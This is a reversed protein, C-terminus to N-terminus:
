SHILFENLYKYWPYQAERTAWITFFRGWLASFTPEIGPVPLNGPLFSHSGIEIALLIGHVSSGSLLICGMPLLSDSVLSCSVCVYVCMCVCVDLISSPMVWNQKENKNVRIEFLSHAWARLIAKWWSSKFAEIYTSLQKFLFSLRSSTMVTLCCFIWNWWMCGMVHM